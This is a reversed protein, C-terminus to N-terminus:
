FINPISHNIVYTFVFNISNNTNEELTECFQTIHYLFIGIYTNYAPDIIKLLHM